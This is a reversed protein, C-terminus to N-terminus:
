QNCDDDQKCIQLLRLLPAPLDRQLDNPSLNDVFLMEQGKTSCPYEDLAQSPGDMWGNM